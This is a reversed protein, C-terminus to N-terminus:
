RRTLWILLLTCGWLALSTWHWDVRRGFLELAPSPTPLQLPQAVLQAQVAALEARLNVVAQQLPQLLNLTGELAQQEGQMTKSNEEQMKGLQQLAAQLETVTAQCRNLAEITAPLSESLSTSATLRYLIKKRDRYNYYLNILWALVGLCAFLMYYSPGISRILLDLQERPKSALLLEEYDKDDRAHREVMEHRAATTHVLKDQVGQLRERIQDHSITWAHHADRLTPSPQMAFLKSLEGSLYTHESQLRSLQEDLEQLEARQRQKREENIKKEQLERERKMNTYYFDFTKWVDPAQKQIFHLIRWNPYEQPAVAAPGEAGGNRPLQGTSFSRAATAGCAARPVQCRVQGLARAVHRM